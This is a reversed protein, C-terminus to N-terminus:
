TGSLYPAACCHAEPETSDSLQISRTAGTPRYPTAACRSDRQSGLDVKAKAEIASPSPLVNYPLGCRPLVFREPIGCADRPDGACARSGQVTYRVGGSSGYGHRCRTTQFRVCPAWSASAHLPHTVLCDTHSRQTSRCSPRSSFDRALPTLIYKPNQQTKTM